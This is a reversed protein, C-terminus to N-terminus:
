KPALAEMTEMAIDMPCGYPLFILPLDVGLERWKKIGAKVEDPNGALAIKDLLVDPIAKAAAKRDGAAWAQRVRDAVDKYGSRVLLDYYFTGMGGVYYAIHGKALDRIGAKDSAVTVLFPSM